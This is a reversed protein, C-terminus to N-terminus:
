GDKDRNLKQKRTYLHDVNFGMKEIGSLIQQGRTFGIKPIARFEKPKELSLIDGITKFGSEKLTNVVNPSLNLDSLPFRSAFAVSEALEPNAKIKELERKRNDQATVADLGYMLVEESPLEKIYSLGVKGYLVLVDMNRTKHFKTFIKDHIVQVRAPTIHHYDAIVRVPMQEKYRMVVISKESPILSDILADCVERKEETTQLRPIPLNLKPNAYKEYHAWFNHPYESM